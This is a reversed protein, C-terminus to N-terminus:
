QTAEGRKAAALINLAEDIQELGGDEGSLGEVMDQWFEARVGGMGAQRAAELSPIVGLRIQVAAARLASEAAACACLLDSGETESNGPAGRQVAEMMAALEAAKDREGGMAEIQKQQKRVRLKATNGAEVQEMTLGMAHLVLELGYRADGAEEVVNVEDLPDGESIHQVVTALLEIGETVVLLSGHLLDRQKDTLGVLADGEDQPYLAHKEDPKRGYFIAAKIADLREGLFHADEGAAWGLDIKGVFETHHGSVLTSLVADRYSAPSDPGTMATHLTTGKHATTLPFRDAGADM